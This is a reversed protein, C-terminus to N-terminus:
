IWSHTRIFCVPPFFNLVYLSVSKKIVQWVALCSSSLPNLDCCKQFEFYIETLAFLIIASVGLYRAHLGETFLPATSSGDIGLFM